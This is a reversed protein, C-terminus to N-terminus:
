VLQSIVLGVAEDVRSAATEKLTQIEHEVDSMSTKQAQAGQEKANDMIADAKERAQGIQEAKLDGAKVSADELIKKCQVEADKVIAEAKAETERIVQITEEVM